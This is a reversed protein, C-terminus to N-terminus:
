RGLYRYLVDQWEAQQIKDLLVRNIPERLPSNSPMAIGYSQRDLILPLVEIQGQLATTALYRLLPRDYVMADVDGRIVAQLGELPTTYHVMAVHKQRLFSESTSRGVTAVWLRSLDQPGNVV